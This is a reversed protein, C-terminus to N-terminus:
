VNSTELRERLATITSDHADATPGIVLSERGKVLAQLAQRMLAEDAEIRSHQLRLRQAAQNDLRAMGQELEAALRLASPLHPKSM